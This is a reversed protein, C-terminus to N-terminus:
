YGGRQNGIDNQQYGMGPQAQPDVKGMRNANQMGAPERVPPQTYSSGGAEGGGFEPQAARGQLGPEATTGPNMQCPTSHSTTSHAKHEQTSSSYSDESTMQDGSGSMGPQTHAKHEQTSKNYDDENATHNDTGYARPQGGAAKNGTNMAQPADGVNQTGMGTTGPNQARHDLDSDVRPDLKNALKSNHPGANTTNAGSTTSGYTDPGRAAGHNDFGRGAGRGPEANTMSPNNQSAAPGKNYPNTSSYTNHTGPPENTPMTDKERHDSVAEKVKNMLNSM